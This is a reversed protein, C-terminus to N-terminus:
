MFYRAKRPNQITTFLLMKEYCMWEKRAGPMAANLRKLM